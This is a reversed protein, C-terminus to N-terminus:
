EQIFIVIVATINSHFHCHRRHYYVIVATITVVFKNQMNCELDMHACGCMDVPHSLSVASQMCAPGCM